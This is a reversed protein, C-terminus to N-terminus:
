GIIEDKSTSVKWNRLRYINVSDVITIATPKIWMNQFEIQVWEGFNSNERSHWYSSDNYKIISDCQYIYGEPSIYNSSNTVKISLKNTISFNIIGNLLINKNSPPVISFVQADRDIKM